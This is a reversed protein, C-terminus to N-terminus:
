WGLAYSKERRPSAAGFLVKRNADYLIATEDGGSWEGGIRVIHGRRELEKLTSAPFRGELAIEGPSAKRPYFSSPFHLIQFNPADIAQQLDMGFEVVNLFFQLNVQDQDDGGPTGFILFPRGNKLALSPTLTTRPRKGPQLSNAKSPDLWFIQGRTTLVFGLGELIPSTRFWGGSPTASFLNGERDAARTGTTGTEGPRLELPPPPVSAAVKMGAFPFPDGPRMEMSARSMDILRRRDRAYEKSLLGVVPVKVFDPDAYYQERDAYALKAAEALLHIYEPSNHGLTALNYGELLNLMELLVPGQSWFGLKYVDIGRYSVHAPEEIRGRYSALDEENMLGTSVFGNADRVKFKRQFRVIECGIDGKYFLDRAAQLAASRGRHRSQTEADMLRRYTRALDKQVFVDGVEPIKGGPLFVRASSPWEELLRKEISTIGSRFGPYMPFGQDALEVAPALVQALTMTGFRDLALILSDVVAPTTAPLFGDDPIL